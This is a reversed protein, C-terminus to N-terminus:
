FWIHPYKKQLLTIRQDLKVLFSQHAESSPNFPKHNRAQQIAAVEKWTQQAKELVYVAVFREWIYDLVQSSPHLMDSAYFRYDRLEDMLIEYVPFYNGNQTEIVDHVASILHAKSRTNEIFGDKLHRVPSVTFTITINPNIDRADRMIQSLSETLEQVSLLRKKFQKQPAKHCNAVVENTAILQYVWATGLTIFLHSAELLRNRLEQQAEQLNIVAQLRSNANLDSHAVFSKWIGDLEFVDEETYTYNTVANHIVQQIAIPNFIIGFPNSVVQFKYQDLKRGMNNSFCSGLLLLKDEYGFQSSSPEVPLQTQLKM